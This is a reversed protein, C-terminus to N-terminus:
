RTGSKVASLQLMSRHVMIARLKCMAKARWRWHMLRWAGRLCSCVGHGFNKDVAFGAGRAQLDTFPQLVHGADLQHANGGFQAFVRSGFARQHGPDIHDNQAQMIVSGSFGHGDNVGHCRGAALGAGLDNVGRRRVAGRGAPDVAKGFQGGALLGGHLACAADGVGTAVGGAGNGQYARQNVGAQDRSVKSQTQRRHTTVGAAPAAHNFSVFGAGRRQKLDGAQTQRM